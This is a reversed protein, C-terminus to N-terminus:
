FRGMVVNAVLEEPGSVIPKSQFLIRVYDLELTDSKRGLKPSYYIRVGDQM